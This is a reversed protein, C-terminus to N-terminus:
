LGLENKVQRSTLFKGQKIDRFGKSIAQKQSKTLREANVWFRALEEYERRPIVVLDDNRILEKPITITSM